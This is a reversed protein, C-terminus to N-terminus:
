NDPSEICEEIARLAVTEGPSDLYNDVTLCTALRRGVVKAFKSWNQLYEMSCNGCIEKLYPGGYDPGGYEPGDDDSLDDAICNGCVCVRFRVNMGLNPVPLNIHACGRHFQPSTGTEEVCECSPETDADM